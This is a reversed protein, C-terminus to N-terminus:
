SLGLDADSRLISPLEEEGEPLSRTDHPHAQSLSAMSRNNTNRNNRNSLATSPPTSARRGTDFANISRRGSRDTSAHSAVSQARDPPRVASPVLSATGPPPRVASTVSAPRSPAHLPMQSRPASSSAVSDPLTVVTGPPPQQRRFPIPGPLHALAHATLPATAAGRVAAPAQQDSVLSGGNGGTYDLPAGL